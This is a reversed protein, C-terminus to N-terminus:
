HATQKLFALIARDYAPPNVNWSEVHGAYRVRTYKVLKPLKEALEDSTTIPVTADETGHFLRIPTHFSSTHDLQNYKYYDFDIRKEIVFEASEVLIGPIGREDGQLAFVAKWSLAPADLILSPVRNALTSFRMFNCVIAGGMSDGWLVIRRAGHGTAWKVASQLDLWETAGLHILDDKSKPAGVDNRYDILLTPLGSRRLTPLYRVGNAKDSDYGHVWIVWTDGRGSVLWGPMAGLSTPVDVHTFPIGLAQKPNGEYVSANLEANTEPKLTGRTIRLERSVRDSTQGTIKGAIAHGGTWDLGYIGPRAADESHKFTVTGQGVAVVREDYPGEKHDPELVLSSFFWGGGALIVVVLVFLAGLGVGVRILWRRRAGAKSDASGNAM